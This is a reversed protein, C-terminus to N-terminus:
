AACGLGSSRAPRSTFPVPEPEKVKTWVTPALGDNMGVSYLEDIKGLAFRDALEDQGSRCLVNRGVLADGRAIEPELMLARAPDLDAAM